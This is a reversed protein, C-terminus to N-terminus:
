KQSFVVETAGIGYRSIPADRFQINEQNRLFKQIEMKLIGVGVGHIFVVKSFKSKRASEFCDMFLDMQKKLKMADDIQEPNQVISEIHLDVEAEGRVTMYKMILSEPEIVSSHHVEHDKRFADKGMAGQIWQIEDFRLLQTTLCNLSIVPNYAYMEEKLFREPKIEVHTFFPAAVGRGTTETFLCQFIGNRFKATDSRSITDILLASASDVYGSYDPKSQNNGASYLVYYVSLKTYNILYLNIDGALVVHQNVPAFALYIGKALETGKRHIEKKVVQKRPGQDHAEAPNGETSPPSEFKEPAKEIIIIDNHLVPLEFGDGVDVYVFEASNRVVVGEGKEHLLRVKDGPKSNKGRLM